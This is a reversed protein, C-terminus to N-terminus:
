AGFYCWKPTIGMQFAPIIDDLLLREMKRIESWFWREDIDCHSTTRASDFDILWVKMDRDVLINRPLVDMHLVGASHVQRLADVAALALEPTLQSPDEDIRVADPIYELLIAHLPVPKAKVQAAHERNSSPYESVTTTARDPYLTSSNKLQGYSKSGDGRSFLKDMNAIRLAGYCYPVIRHHKPTFEASSSPPRSVGHRLLAAYALYEWM